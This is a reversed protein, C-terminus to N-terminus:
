IGLHQKLFALVYPATAAAAADALRSDINMQATIAEAIRGTVVGIAGDELSGLVGDGKLLGSAFAAFFSLGAHNGLLGGSDKHHQEVHSAGAATAHRLIQQAQGSNFGQQALAAAADRGQSSGLFSTALAAVDSSTYDGSHFYGRRSLGFHQAPLLGSLRRVADGSHRLGAGAAPHRRHGGRRSWWEEMLKYRNGDPAARIEVEYSKGSVGEVFARVTCETSTSSPPQLGDICIQDDVYLKRVRQYAADRDQACAKAQGGTTGACRRPPRLDWRTGAAEGWRRM